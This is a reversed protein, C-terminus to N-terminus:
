AVVGGGGTARQGPGALGLGYGQAGLTRAPAGYAQYAYAVIPAEGKADRTATAPIAADNTTPEDASAVASSLTGAVFVFRAFLKGVVRVRM